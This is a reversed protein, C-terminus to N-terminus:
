QSTRFQSLPTQVRPISSKQYFHSEFWTQSPPFDFELNLSAYLVPLITSNLCFPVSGSGRLLQLMFPDRIMLYSALFLFLHFDFTNADRNDCIQNLTLTGYFVFLYKPITFYDSPLEITLDSKGLLWANHMHM